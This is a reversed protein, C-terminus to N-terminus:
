RLREQTIQAFRGRGVDGPAVAVSKIVAHCSQGPELAMDAVSRRTIRAILRDRGHDPGGDCGSWRRLAM